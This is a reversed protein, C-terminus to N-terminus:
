RRQKVKRKTEKYIENVDTCVDILEFISLSLFYDMGTQLNMSLSICLKRLDKM